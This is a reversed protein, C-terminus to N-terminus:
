PTATEYTFLGYMMYNPQAVWRFFMGLCIWVINRILDSVIDLQHNWGM